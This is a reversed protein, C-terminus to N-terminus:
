ELRAIMWTTTGQHTPGRHICFTSSEGSEDDTYAIYAGTKSTLWRGLSTVHARPSNGNIPFGDIAEAIPLLESPKVRVREREFGTKRTWEYWQACFSAATKMESNATDNLRRRNTLFNTCGIAHMIGGMVRHYEEYGGWPKLGDPKPRGTQLWWRIIIHACQVLRPRNEKCWILLEPHRFGEREEPNATKPELRIDLCRQSLEHSMQPNNATLTWVTRIPANASQNTGLIRDDWLTETWATALVASTLFHNVNDIKVATKSQLIATTINKRNEAEDRELSLVPTTTGLAAFLVADVMKSKGSRAVSAEVLHCPTAGDILDRAFPLLFLALANDRDALGAFPFDLILEGCLFHVAEQVQEATVEDPVPLPKFNHAPTYLVGPQPHYGSELRLSGDPAFVPVSVMRRLVPLPPEATALVDKMLDLPPKTVQTENKNWDAWNSLVHRLIEPTLKEARPRGDEDGAVRVLNGAFRFLVEPKNAQEIARWCMANLYPLDEIGVDIKLKGNDKLPNRLEPLAKPKRTFFDKVNTTIESM